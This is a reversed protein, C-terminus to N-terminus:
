RLSQMTTGPSWMFTRVSGAPPLRLRFHKFVSCRKALAGSEGKFSSRRGLGETVSSGLICCGMKM